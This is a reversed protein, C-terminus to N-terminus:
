EDIGTMMMIFDIDAQLKRMQKEEETLAKFDFRCGGEPLVEYTNLVYDDHHEEFSPNKKDGPDISLTMSNCNDMLYDKDVVDETYFFGADMRVHPLVDNNNLVIDTYVYTDLDVLYKIWKEDMDIIM